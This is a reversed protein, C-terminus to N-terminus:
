YTFVCQSHNRPANKKQPEPNLPELNARPALGGKITQSLPETPEIPEFPTTRRM